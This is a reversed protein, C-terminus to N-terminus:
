EASTAISDVVWQLYDPNGDQIPLVLICPVDYPHQERTLQTIAPVNTRMTHMTARAEPDKEVKGEWRYTSEVQAIQACAILRDEVLRRCHQQIFDPPGTIVVEVADTM